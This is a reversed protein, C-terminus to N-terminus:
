QDRVQAQYYQNIVSQLSASLQPLQRLLIFAELLASQDEQGRPDNLWKTFRDIHYIVEPDLVEPQQEPEVLELSRALRAQLGLDLEIDGMSSWPLRGTSVLSQSDLIAEARDMHYRQEEASILDVVWTLVQNPQLQDYPTFSQPDPQGLQVSFLYDISFQQRSARINCDVSVVQRDAGTYQLQKISWHFQTNTLTNIVQM